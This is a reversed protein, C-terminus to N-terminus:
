KPSLRNMPTGPPLKAISVEPAILFFPCVAFIANPILGTQAHRCLVSLVAQKLIPDDCIFHKPM